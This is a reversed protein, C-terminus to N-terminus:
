YFISVISNKFTKRERLHNNQLLFCICTNLKKQPATLREVSMERSSDFQVEVGRYIRLVACGCVCGNSLSVFSKRKIAQLVGM